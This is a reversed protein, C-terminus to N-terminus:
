FLDHKKIKYVNANDDGDYEGNSDIFDNIRRINKNSLEKSSLLVNKCDSSLRLVCTKINRGTYECLLMFVTLPSISKHRNCIIMNIGIYTEEFFKQSIRKKVKDELIAPYNKEVIDYFLQEDEVSYTVSKNSEFANHTTTNQAFEPITEFYSSSNMTNTRANKKAFSEYDEYEGSCADSESDRGKRRKKESLEDDTYSDIGTDDIEDIFISDCQDSNHKM